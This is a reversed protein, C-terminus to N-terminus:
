MVIHGFNAMSQQSLLLIIQNKNIDQPDNKTPHFYPNESLCQSDNTRSTPAESFRDVRRLSEINRDSLRLSRTSNQMVCCDQLVTHTCYFKLEDITPERPWHFIQRIVLDSIKRPTTSKTRATKIDKKISKLGQMLNYFM